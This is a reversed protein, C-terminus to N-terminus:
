LRLVHGAFNFHFIMVCKCCLDNVGSVFEHRFYYRTCIKLRVVYIMLVV